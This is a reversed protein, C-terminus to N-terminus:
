APQEKEVCAYGKCGAGPFVARGDTEHLLLGVKEMESSGEEGGVHLSVTNKM